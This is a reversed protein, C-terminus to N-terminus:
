RVITVWVKGLRARARKHINISECSQEFLKNHVAQDARRFLGLRPQSRLARYGATM